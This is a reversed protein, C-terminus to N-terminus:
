RNFLYNHKTSVKIGNSEDVTWLSTIQFRRQAFWYRIIAILPIEAASINMFRQNHRLPHHRKIFPGPRRGAAAVVSKWSCPGNRPARGSTKRGVDERM